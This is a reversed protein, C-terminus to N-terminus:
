QLISYECYKVQFRISGVTIKNVMAACLLNQSWEYPSFAVCYIQEALSISHTPSSERHKMM